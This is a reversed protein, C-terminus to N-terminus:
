SKCFWSKKNWVLTSNTQFIRCMKLHIKELGFQIQNPFPCQIFDLQLASLLCQRGTVVRARENRPRFSTYGEWCWLWRTPQIVKKPFDQSHKDTKWHFPLNQLQMSALPPLQYFMGSVPLIHYFCTFCPLSQYFSIHHMSSNIPTHLYFSFYHM